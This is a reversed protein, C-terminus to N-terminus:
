KAKRRTEVKSSDSEQQPVPEQVTVSESLRVLTGIDIDRKVAAAQADDLAYVESPQFVMTEIINGKEDRVSRHFAGSGARALKVNIM